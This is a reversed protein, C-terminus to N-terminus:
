EFDDHRTRLTPPRTERRQASLEGNLNRIETRLSEVVQTLRAIEVDKAANLAAWADLQISVSEMANTSEVAQTKSKEIQRTSRFGFFSGVLAATATIAAALVLPDM